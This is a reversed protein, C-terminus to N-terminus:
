IDSMCDACASMQDPRSSLCHKNEPMCDAHALSCM